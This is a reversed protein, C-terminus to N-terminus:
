LGAGGGQEHDRRDPSVVPDLVVARKKIEGPGESHCVLQTYSRAM